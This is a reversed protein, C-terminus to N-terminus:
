PRLALVDIVAAALALGAFSLVVVAVSAQGLYNADRRLAEVVHKGNITM